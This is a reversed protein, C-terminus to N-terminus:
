VKFTVEITPQIIKEALAKPDTKEPIPPLANTAFIAVETGPPLQPVKSKHVAKTKNRPINKSVTAMIINAAGITDGKSTLRPNLGNHHPSNNM